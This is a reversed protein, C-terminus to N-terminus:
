LGRQENYGIYKKKDNKKIINIIIVDGGRITASTWM